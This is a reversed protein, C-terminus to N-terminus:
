IEYQIAEGDKNFTLRLKKFETSSSIYKRQAFPAQIKVTIDQVPRWKGLFDLADIKSLLVHHEQSLNSPSYYWLSITSESINKLPHLLFFEYKQSVNLTPLTKTSMAPLPQTIKEELTVEKGARAQILVDDSAPNSWQFSASGENTDSVQTLATLKLNSALEKKQKDSLKLTQTFYYIRPHSLSFEIDVSEIRRALISTKLELVKGEIREITSSLSVTNKSASLAAVSFITMVAMISMVVVLEILTLGKYFYMNKM